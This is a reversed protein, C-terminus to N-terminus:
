ATNASSIRWSFFNSASDISLASLIAVDLLGLYIATSRIPPWSGAFRARALRIQATFVHTLAHTQRATDGPARSKRASTTRAHQFSVLPWGQIRDRIRRSFFPPLVATVRSAAATLTPARTDDRDHVRSRRGARIGGAEGTSPQGFARTVGDANPLIIQSDM